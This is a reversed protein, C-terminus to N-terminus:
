SCDASAAIILLNIRASLRKWGEMSHELTERADGSMGYHQLRIPGTYKMRHLLRLVQSVDYTGRDLPQILEKWSTGGADAGNIHVCFLYPQATQLTAPLDKSDVM